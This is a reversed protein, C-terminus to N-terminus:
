APQDRFPFFPKPCSQCRFLLSDRTTNPEKENTAPRPVTKAKEGEKSAAYFLFSLRIQDTVIHAWTETENFSQVPTYRMFYTQDLVENRLSDLIYTTHGINVSVVAHLVGRQTDKVVAIRIQDKSFGFERLSFFKAIAFDECDGRGRILEMPSAWYDLKGFSTRDDTYRALGNVLENVGELKTKLPKTKLKKLQQRWRRLGPPCRKSSKECDTYIATERKIRGQVSRWNNAYHHHEVKFEFSGLLGFRTEFRQGANQTVHDDALNARQADSSRAVVAEAHLILAFLFALYKM